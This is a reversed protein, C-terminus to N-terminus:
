CKAPDLAVAHESPKVGGGLRRSYVETLEAGFFVIQSSYYVWIVLAVLSGAAGFSSTVSSKGIYLALLSKGLTFLLATAFAGPLVDKWDIQVDPVIRFILAFLGTTFALSVAANVLQWIFEGGPLYGSFFKGVASLAASAILSVLLLFAVALVMAFSFFRQRLFSVLGQGPKVGVKWITNMASHLEIFVGSAGLILIVIGLVASWFGSGTDSSSAVITEIADAAKHGVVKAMEVAIHGRAADRGFVVGAIAVCLVGLPAISLLTYCSLAAALRSVNDSDWNRASETVIARTRSWFPLERLSACPERDSSESESV